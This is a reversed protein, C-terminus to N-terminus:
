AGDELPLSQEVQINIRTAVSEWDRDYLRLERAIWHLSPNCHIYYLYASAALCSVIAWGLVCEVIVELSM